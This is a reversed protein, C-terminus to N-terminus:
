LISMWVFEDYKGYEELIQSLDSGIECFKSRLSSSKRLKCEPSCDGTALWDWGAMRSETALGLWGAPVATELGLWDWGALWSEPVLGPEFAGLSPSDGTGGPVKQPKPERNDTLQMDPM